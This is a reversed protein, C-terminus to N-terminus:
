LRYRALKAQVPVAHDEAHEVTVYDLDYKSGPKAKVWQAGILNTTAVHPVPGTRFDVEGVITKARLVKMAQALKAKHRPAGSARLAAVAVDILSM